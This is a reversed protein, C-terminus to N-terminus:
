ASTTGADWRWVPQTAEKKPGKGCANIAMRWGSTRISSESGHTEHAPVKTEQVMAFDAATHKLYEAANDWANPNLSDIALLRHQRHSRDDARLMGGRPWAPDDVLWDDSVPHSRGTALQRQVVGEGETGTGRTGFTALRKVKKALRRRACRTPASRQSASDDDDHSGNDEDAAEPMWDTLRLKVTPLMSQLRRIEEPPTEPPSGTDLYYGRGLPGTKFAMFPKSGEFKAKAIFNPVTVNDSWPDDYDQQCWDAEEIDFASSLPAPPGAAAAVVPAEVRTDFLQPWGAEVDDDSTDTGLSAPADDDSESDALPPLFDFDDDSMEPQQHQDPAEEPPGQTGNGAEGSCQIMQNVEEAWMNDRTECTGEQKGEGSGDRFRARTEGARDRNQSSSQCFRPALLEVKSDDSDGGGGAEMDKKM